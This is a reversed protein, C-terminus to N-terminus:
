RKGFAGRDAFGALLWRLCVAPSPRDPRPVSPCCDGASDGIRALVVPEKEFGIAWGRGPEKGFCLAAPPAALMFCFVELRWIAWIGRPLAWVAFRREIDRVGTIGEMGRLVVRHSFVMDRFSGGCFSGRRRSEHIKWGALVLRLEKWVWVVGMAMQMAALNLPNKRFHECFARSVESLIKHM